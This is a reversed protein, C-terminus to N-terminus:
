IKIQKEELVLTVPFTFGQLTIDKSPNEFDLDIFWSHAVVVGYMARSLVGELDRVRKIALATEDKLWQVKESDSLMEVSDKYEKIAEYMVHDGATLKKGADVKKMVANVAPLTSLGKIKVTLEKSMYFDTSEERTTKPAFGYDRIGKESLWDAAEKGYLDALGQANVKGVLEERYFKFVKQKAKLYQLKVHNRMFAEGSINKTMSRNVLPINDLKVLLAIEDDSHGIVEYDCDTINVLECKPIVIPLEKMNVIGDKVVTYNRYIKSTVTCPLCKELQFQAPIDITGQQETNVSINPRSNNTVLKNMPVFEVDSVFKPTWEEYTVMKSALEKREASTTAQAIQESLQSITDDEKQVTARGTRNYSFYESKINLKASAKILMDLVQTLTVADEDPVMNYDIGAAFRLSPDVVCSEILAKANSYDQKTFCNDYAKILQVDGLKKLVTWALDPNMMHVAHYLMVYLEQHDVIGDVSEVSDAGVAWIRNIHEPILAVGAAANVTVVRSGDVYLAHTADGVNVEIRTAKASTIVEEFATEYQEYNETFTHIANTAEAMQELLKRNCNWGYELFTIDSFVAPLASCADLIESTKWENDYGDTMFILSNLNGNDAALEAAIEASKKLPEVFGTCGIPKLFRDISINIDTLDSISNIEQGVFVSGCQGKNSFYIISVTDLPKVLKALNNKLHNRIKPLVGYMSYSVDAVFIHNTPAPKAVATTFEITSIM